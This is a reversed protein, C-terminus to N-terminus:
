QGTAYMDKFGLRRKAVDSFDKVIECGRFDRRLHKCAAPTTGSGVFFDIVLHGEKTFTKIFEKILEVPKQAEAPFGSVPKEDLETYLFPLTKGRWRGKRMIICSEIKNIKKNLRKFTQLHKFGVSEAQRIFDDLTPPSCFSCLIRNNKLVDYCEKLWNLNFDVDYTSHPDTMVMDVKEGADRLNELFYSAQCCYIKCLYKKKTM